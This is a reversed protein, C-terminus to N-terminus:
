RMQLQSGLWARTEKDSPLFMEVALESLVVDRPGGMVMTTSFFSLRQGDKELILPLVPGVAVSAKDEAGGRCSRIEDLLVALRADGTHRLQRELREVLHGRWEGLNAIEPALGEPHLSLRVVNVPAALLHPAVGTMLLRAATNAAVLNWGGDIILSPNPSMQEILAVLLEEAKLAAADRSQDTYEPSYGAALLM